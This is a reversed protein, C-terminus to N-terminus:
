HHIACGNEPAELPRLLCVDVDNNVYRACISLAESCDYTEDAMLSWYGPIEAVM